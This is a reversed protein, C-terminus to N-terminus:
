NLINSKLIQVISADDKNTSGIFKRGNTDKFSYCDVMTNDKKSIECVGLSDNNEVNVLAYNYGENTTDWEYAVAYMTGHINLQYDRYITDQGPLNMVSDLRVYTYAPTPTATPTAVQVTSTNIEKTPQTTSKGAMFGIGTLIIAGIATTITIVKNTKTM